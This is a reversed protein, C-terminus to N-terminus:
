LTKAEKKPTSEQESTKKVIPRFRIINGKERHIDKWHKAHWIVALVTGIIYLLLISEPMISADAIYGAGAILLCSLFIM